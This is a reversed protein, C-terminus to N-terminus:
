ARSLESASVLAKSAHLKVMMQGKRLIVYQISVARGRYLVTEGEAFTPLQTAAKLTALHRAAAAAHASVHADIAPNRIALLKFAKGIESRLQAGTCPKTLLFLAGASNALAIQEADVDASLLGFQCKPNLASIKRFLEIGDLAEGRFWDTVLFDPTHRTAITLADAPTQATKILEPNFSFSKFLATLFTQLKKSREAILFRVQIM